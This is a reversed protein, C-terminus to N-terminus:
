KHTIVCGMTWMSILVTVFTISTLATHLALNQYTYTNRREAKQKQKQNRDLSYKHINVACFGSARRHLPPRTWKWITSLDPLKINWSIHSSCWYNRQALLLYKPSLNSYQILETWCFSMHQRQQREVNKVQKCTTVFLVNKVQKCTQRWHRVTLVTRMRNFTVIRYFESYYLATPDHNRYRYWRVSTSEFLPYRRANLSEIHFKYLLLFYDWNRM